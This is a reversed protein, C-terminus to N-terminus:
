DIRLSPCSVLWDICMYLFVISLISLSSRGPYSSYKSFSFIIQSFKLTPCKTIHFFDMNIIMIEYIFLWLLINERYTPLFFITYIIIMKIPRFNSGMYYFIIITFYLKWKQPVLRISLWIPTPIWGAGNPSKYCFKEDILSQCVNNRWWEYALLFHSSRVFGVWWENNM